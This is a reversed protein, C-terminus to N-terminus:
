TREPGKEESHAYIETIRDVAEVHGEGGVEALGRAIGLVDGSGHEARVPDTVKVHLVVENQVRDM